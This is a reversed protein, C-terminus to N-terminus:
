GSLPQEDVFITFTLADATGSRVSISGGSPVYMKLELNVSTNGELSVDYYLAQGTTQSDDDYGNPDLFIRYTAATGTVNCVHICQVAGIMGSHPTYLVAADTSDPIIQRVALM